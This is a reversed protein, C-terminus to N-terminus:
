IWAVSASLVWIPQQTCACLAANTLSLSCYQDRCRFPDCACLDWQGLIQRHCVDDLLKAAEEGAHRLMRGCLLLTRNVYPGIQQKIPQLLRHTVSCLSNPQPLALSNRM